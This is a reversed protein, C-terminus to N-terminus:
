DASRSSRAGSSAKLGQTSASARRPRAEHLRLDPVKRVPPMYPVGCLDRKQNEALWDMARRLSDSPLKDRFDPDIDYPHVELLDALKFMMEFGIANRCSIYHSFGSQNMGLRAAAESQSLKLVDQKAIWIDRLRECVAVQDPTLPRKRAQTGETSM